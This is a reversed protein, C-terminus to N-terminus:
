RSSGPHPAHPPMSYDFPQNHYSTGILSGKLTQLQESIDYSLARNSGCIHIVPHGCHFGQSYVGWSSFNSRYYAMLHAVDSTDPYVGLTCLAPIVWETAFLCLHCFGKIAALHSCWTSACTHGKCKMHPSPPLSMHFIAGTSIPLTAADEMQAHLFGTHTLSTAMQAPGISLEQLTYWGVSADKFYSTSLVNHPM